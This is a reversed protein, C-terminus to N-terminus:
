SSASTSIMVLFGLFGSPFGLGGFTAGDGAEVVEGGVGSLGLVDGSGIRFDDGSEFLLQEGAIRLDLGVFAWNSLM